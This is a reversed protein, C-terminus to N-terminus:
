RKNLIKLVNDYDAIIKRHKIANDWNGTAVYKKEIQPNKEFHEAWDIHTQRMKSIDKIAKKVNM